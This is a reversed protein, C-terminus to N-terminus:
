NGRPAGAKQARNTVKRHLIDDKGTARKPQSGRDGGIVDAAFVFHARQQPQRVIDVAKRHHRDTPWGVPEARKGTPREILDHM